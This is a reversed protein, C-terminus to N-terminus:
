LFSFSNETLEREARVLILFSVKVVIPNLCSSCKAAYHYRDIIDTHCRPCDCDFYYRNKLEKMRDSNSNMLDIYSIRVM